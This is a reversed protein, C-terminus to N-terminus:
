SYDEALNWKHHMDSVFTISTNWYTGSQGNIDPLDSLAAVLWGGFVPTRRLWYGNDHKIDQWILEKM